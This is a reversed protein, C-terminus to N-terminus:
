WFCERAYNEGNKKSYGTMLNRSFLIWSFKRKSSVYRLEFRVSVGPPNDEIATKLSPDLSESLFLPPPPPRDDRSQSLAPSARDGFFTKEARPAETQDLFLPHPPPPPNPPCCAGGKSGGSIKVWSGGVRGLM